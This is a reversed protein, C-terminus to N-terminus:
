KDKVNPFHKDLLSYIKETTDMGYYLSKSKIELKMEEIKKNVGSGEKRIANLFPELLLKTEMVYVLLEEAGGNKIQQARFSNPLLKHINAIYELFFIEFLTHEEMTFDEDTKM